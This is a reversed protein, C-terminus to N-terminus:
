ARWAGAPPTPSTNYTIRYTGQLVNLSKTLWRQGPQGRVQAAYVIAGDRRGKFRMYQARKPTIMRPPSSYIGTGRETWWGRLLDTGVRYTLRRGPIVDEEVDISAALKGTYKPANSIAGFYVKRVDNEIARRVPGTRGTLFEDIEAQDLHLVFRSAMPHTYGGHAPGCWVAQTILNFM